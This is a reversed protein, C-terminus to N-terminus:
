GGVPTAAGFYGSLINDRGAPNAKPEGLSGAEGALGPPHKADAIPAPKAKPEGPRISRMRSTFYYNWSNRQDYRLSIIIRVTESITNLVCFFM